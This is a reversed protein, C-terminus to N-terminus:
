TDQKGSGFISKVSSALAEVVEKGAFAAGLALLIRTLTWSRNRFDATFYQAVTVLHGVFFVIVAIGILACGIKFRFKTLEIRALDGALDLARDSVPPIEKLDTPGKLALKSPEM